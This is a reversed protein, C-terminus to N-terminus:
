NEYKGRSQNRCGLPIRFLLGLICIGIIIYAATLNIESHNLTTHVIPEGMVEMTPIAQPIM